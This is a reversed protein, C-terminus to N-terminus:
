EPLDREAPEDPSAGWPEPQPQPETEQAEPTQTGPASVPAPASGIRTKATVVPVLETMIGQLIEKVIDRPADKSPFVVKTVESYFKESHVHSGRSEIVLRVRMSGKYDTSSTQDLKLSQVQGSIDFDTGYEGPAPHYEVRLGSAKLEDYVAWSVWEALSSEAFFDQGESTRGLVAKGGIGKETEDMFKIVSVSGASSGADLVHLTDYTLPVTASPACGAVLAMIILFAAGSLRFHMNM